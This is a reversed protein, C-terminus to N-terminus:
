TGLTLTSKAELLGKDGKAAVRLDFGTIIATEDISNNVYKVQIFVGIKDKLTSTISIVKNTGPRGFADENTSTTSIKFTDTDQFVDSLNLAAQLTTGTSEFPVQYHTTISGFVKRQGSDGVDIARSLISMNIASSDDRYDSAEGLRRVIFIRGTTSSFYSDAVLNTWGTAPHNTYTTWSGSGGGDGEYERTHNYVAVHSNEDEGTIPYSLKYSNASADHHGTALYLYSRNVTNTFKREYKRGIYDITLNRNLRYIGTENAFMIGNKTVAVSYPATCGKGMTELKQVPNFGQEKVALDVLYISNTKFVVITGSKQASGFASDGFFPIIATIEQGDASNIDIASRSDIDSAAAPNDFIEPFNSFSTIIRSPFVKTVAGITTGQSRKVNNGFIALSSNFNPLQLELTTNLIKPQQIILQGSNYENGARAIMWPEFDTQGTLSKNVLRMTCNIAEALRKMALFEYPETSTYNGNSQSYNGDTGIPVPVDTVTTAFLAKTPFATAAGSGAESYTVTFTTTSNVNSIQWWGAYKLKDADTVADHFLYVWQKSSSLTLGHVASTTVLFSTNSTGSISTVTLATSVDRFQYKVRNVMDTSTGADTNDKRFLWDRNSSNTFVSQTIIDTPKVIRVDVQPYDKLNGFILRNGASTCYAARMPQTFGTGYEGGLLVGHVQDTDSDTFFADPTTDTYDIYGTNNNFNIPLTTVLNFIAGNAKTRYIQLELKDYDYIDWVPMGIARINVAANAGMKVIHDFAGTAASATVNDNADVMNLRFYYKFVSIKTLTQGNTTGSIVRDVVIFADPAEHTINIITYIAKDSSAQIQDGISFVDRDNENVHFKNNTATATTTVTPNDVVIKGAAATDTTVFLNAQWPLLGARYISTGDVKLVEDSYNTLYLNDQVMTSRIIEQQDFAESDFHTVKTKPTINYGDTPIEFPAWRGDVNFYISSDITDTYELEEDVQITKGVIKGTQTGTISSDFTFAITSTVETITQVGNFDETDAFLLQAGEFLHNTNGSLLTVTATYGDGTISVNIDSLANVHKVRLQRNIESYTLMDGRVINVVTATNATSADRCPVVSSTRSAALRLGQPLDLVDLVGSILATTGIANEVTVFDITDPFLVSAITDGPLYPTNNNMVLRDTFVGGRGGVDQEDYDTTTVAPIEVSIKLTTATPQTIAKVKFNGNHVRYGCDQATFIDELGATTQIINALTGNIVMGPVNLTYETYGSGTNYMVSYISFFNSAAGNGTIFGRTRGPTQGTAYFAPGLIADNALRENVRPYFIPMLYDAANTGENRLRAAYINGGLGAVVRNEGISRYSDIHNVWGERTTHLGYIESHDLGYVTLQPSTESYAVGIAAGTVQIKNTSINAYDWYVEFNAGQSMYNYFTIDVENTNSNSVISDPIVQELTGGITQELYCSIFSFDYGGSTDLTITIPSLAAVSGTKYNELPAAVLIIVYTGVADGTTVTVDDTSQNMTVSVPQQETYIGGSDLFLKAIINTNGFNHTGGTITYSTSGTNGTQVYTQGTVNDKPLIWIFVEFSNGTNNTYNISIDKTTKDISISNPIIQIYSSSLGDTSQGIGVFLNATTYDHETQPIVLTNTGTLFTKRIDSLFGSYYKKNNSDTWDGSHSDKTKGIVVLPQSRGLPVEISDDFTFTINNTSATSYSIEKVRLPINGAFGQYGARKGIHGASKPDANEIDEVFGPQIKNEASQQDIGGGFDSERVTQYNLKSM